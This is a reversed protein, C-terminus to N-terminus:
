RVERYTFPTVFDRFRPLQSDKASLTVENATVNWPITLDLDDWRIGMEYQAAYPASVKYAIETQPEITVFGHAFGVPVLVQQWNQASLTVVVYKGYTPSGRRIDVAVDIIAGHIVRVLKDQAFPPAQFHLGRLTGRAESLSQNDQVFDLDIGAELFSKKSYTESFFGRNDGFKRPTILKVDDIALSQIEM